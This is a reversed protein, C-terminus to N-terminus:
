KEVKIKNFFEDVDSKRYRVTSLIRIEPFDKHAKKFKYFTSLSIRLYNCVDEDTMLKEDAESTKEAMQPNELLMAVIRHGIQSGLESVLKSFHYNLANHEM